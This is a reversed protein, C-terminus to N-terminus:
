RERFAERSKMMPRLLYSIVSREGSRMEASGTMGPIVPLPKGYQQLTSRDTRILARYYTADATAAREPDGLADPSISEVTGALGGYTTYDYASLKVEAHQGVRVFGIDSPRIRAEVLVRPGVPVIEMIAAGPGVVGGLTAVRINKVYGRVPSTLVTRRLVDQRGALQEDIQALESRTRILDTSAEQRFRNVREQSQLRLENIQRELRMVEVNSLLGQASLSEAVKLEKALSAINRENAAVADDIARRRATYAAREAEAVGPAKQVEPPFALAQGTSEATLRALTGQLALRRVQGESQQAAFRTPDLQALPQGAEVPAGERVMMERLIGGELSAIVQERGDPVIRADARTIEDVRAFAAWAIAAAVALAILYLALV